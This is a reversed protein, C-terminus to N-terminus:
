RVSAAVPWRLLPQRTASVEYNHAQASSDTNLTGDANFGDAVVSQDMSSSYNGDMSFGMVRLPLRIKKAEQTQTEAGPYDNWM